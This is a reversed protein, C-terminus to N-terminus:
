WEDRSRATSHTCLVCPLRARGNIYLSGNMEASMLKVHVSHIEEVGIVGQLSQRLKEEAQISSCDETDHGRGPLLIFLM